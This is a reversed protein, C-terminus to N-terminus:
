KNKYRVVRDNVSLMIDNEETVEVSTKEVQRNEYANKLKHNLYWRLPKLDSVMPKGFDEFSGNKGIFDYFNYISHYELLNFTVLSDLYRSEGVDMGFSGIIDYNFSYDVIKFKTNDINKCSVCADLLDQYVGVANFTICEASSLTDMNEYISYQALGGGLSHGAFYVKGKYDLFKIIDNVFTLHTKFQSLKGINKSFIIKIDTIVDKFNTIKTGKAVFILEDKDSLLAYGEYGDKAKKYAIIEFDKVKSLNKYLVRKKVSKRCKEYVKFIDTGNGQNFVKECTNGFTTRGGYYVGDKLYFMEKFSESWFNPTFYAFSALVLLQEETVIEETVIKEDIIKKNIQKDNIM